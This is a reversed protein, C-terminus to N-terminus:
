ILNWREKLLIANSKRVSTPLDPKISFSKDSSNNHNLLISRVDATSNLTVLTQLPSCSLPEGQSMSAWHKCIEFLSTHGTNDSM